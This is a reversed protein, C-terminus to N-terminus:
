RSQRLVLHWHGIPVPEDVHPYYWGFTLKKTQLFTIRSAFHVDTTPVVLRGKSSREHGQVVSHSEAVGLEILPPRTVIGTAKFAIAAGTSEASLPCVKLFTSLDGTDITVSNSFSWTMTDGSITINQLTTGATAGLGDLPVQLANQLDSASTSTHVGIDLVDYTTGGDFSIRLHDVGNWVWPMDKDAFWSWLLEYPGVIADTFSLTGTHSENLTHSSLHLM